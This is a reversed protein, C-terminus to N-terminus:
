KALMRFLYETVHETIVILPYGLQAIGAREADRPLDRGLLNKCARRFAQAASHRGVKARDRGSEAVGRIEHASTNSRSGSLQLNKSLTM